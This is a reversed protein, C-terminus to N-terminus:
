NILVQYTLRYIHIYVLCWPTENLREKGMKSSIFTLNQFLLPWLIWGNYLSLSLTNIWTKRTEFGNWVCHTELHTFGQLLLTTSLDCHLQSFMKGSSIIESLHLWTQNDLSPIPLTNMQLTPEKRVTERCDMCYAHSGSTESFSIFWSTELLCTLAMYVSHLMFLKHWTDLMNYILKKKNQKVIISLSVNFEWDEQRLRLVPTGDCRDGWWM